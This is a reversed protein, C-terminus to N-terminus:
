RVASHADDTPHPAPRGAAGVPSDGPVVGPEPAAEASVAAVDPAASGLVIEAVATLSDTGPEFYGDHGAVDRAPVSRAGFTEVTPDGGHGLDGLRLKPVASIWDNEGRGAWVRAETDLEEVSEARVGPAALFVLEDAALEPAALGCVVAGYSHCVLSIRQDPNQTRLGTAFDVLEHAGARALRGGVADLGIGEPTQYGLWAIVATQTGPSRTTLEDHLARAMGMPRRLPLESEAFRALDVDSGPVLVAVDRAEDLDGLVVAVRGRGQPDFLLLQEQRVAAEDPGAAPESEDSRHRNAAYRLAAPAGDLQGLVAPHADVLREAEAPGTAAFFAAIVAPEADPPPLPRGQSRDQAWAAAASAAPAFPAAATSAPATTLGVLVSLGLVAATPRGISRLQRVARERTGM